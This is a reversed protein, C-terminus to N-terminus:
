STLTNSDLAADWQRAVMAAESGATPSLYPLMFINVIESVGEPDKTHFILGLLLLAVTHTICLAKLYM